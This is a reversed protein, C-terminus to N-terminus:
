HCVQRSYALGQGDVLEQQLILINFDLIARFCWEEFAEASQHIQNVPWSHFDDSLMSQLASTKIFLSTNLAFITAACNIEKIIAAHTAGKGYVTNPPDEPAEDSDVTSGLAGPTDIPSPTLHPSASGHQGAVELTSLSPVPSGSPAQFGCTRRVSSASMPQRTRTLLHVHM